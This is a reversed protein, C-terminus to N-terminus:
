QNNNLEEHPESKVFGNPIPDGANYGGTSCIDLYPCARGWKMCAGTSRPYYGNAECQNILNAAFWYDQESIALDNELRAIKRREFYREPEALMAEVVRDTFEEPTEPRTQIVFGKETDATQRPKGNANYVREDRNADIVIKRGDLDLLPIEKPRLAPKSIVNYLISKINYGAQIAAKWYLSVQNDVNLRQWYVPDDIKDSTTKHEMLYINGEADKVIADRVGSLVFKRSTGTNGRDTTRQLPIEFTKETEIAKLKNEYHIFYAAVIGIAKAITYQQEKHKAFTEQTGDCDIPRYKTSLLEVAIDIPKGQLHMEIGNHVIKGIILAEPDEPRKIGLVYRYQYMKKCTDFTNVASHTLINM